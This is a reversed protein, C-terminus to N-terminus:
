STGYSSEVRAAVDRYGYDAEYVQKMCALARLRDDMEEYVLGLEYVIEKKTADMTAIESAAEELQRAALDYMGLARYCQGLANMAKLRAHPHQRARQLEPLALRYQGAHM